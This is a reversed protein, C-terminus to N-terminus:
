SSCSAENRLFYQAQLLWLMYFELVVCTQNLLKLNKFIISKLKENLIYRLIGRGSRQNFFKECKKVITVLPPLLGVWSTSAEANLESAHM